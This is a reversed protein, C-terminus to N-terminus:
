EGERLLEDIRKIVKKLCFEILAIVIPLPIIAMLGLLITDIGIPINIYKKYLLLLIGVLSIILIISAIISNVRVVFLSAVAKQSRAKIDSLSAHQISSFFFLRVFQNKNIRGALVSLIILLLSTIVFLAWEIKILYKLIIQDELM